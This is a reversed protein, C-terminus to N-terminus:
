WDRRWAFLNYLLVIMATSQLVIAVIRLRRPTEAFPDTWRPGNLIGGFVLAGMALVSILVNRHSGPRWEPAGSSISQTITWVAWVIYALILYSSIALTRGVWVGIRSNAITM